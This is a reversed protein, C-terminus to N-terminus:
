GKRKEAGTQDANQVGGVRAAFQALFQAARGSNVHEDDRSEAMAVMYDAVAETITEPLGTDDSAAYPGPIRVYIVDLNQGSPAPPYVYFRVPDNGSPMWHKATGPTGSMWGPSFADLASKDCPTVVDGGTVRLVSVLAQADDYTVSQLAQGAVCEIRGETYFWEPRIRVLARIAGNGYAVLDDDSYRTVDPDRDQLVGRAIEIASSIRFGM